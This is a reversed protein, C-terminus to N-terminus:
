KYRRDTLRSYESFTKLDTQLIFARTEIENEIKLEEVAVKHMKTFSEKLEKNKAQAAQNDYIEKQLREGEKIGTLPSRLVPWEVM